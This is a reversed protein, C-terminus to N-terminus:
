YIGVIRRTYADIAISLWPRGCPRGTKSSILEIDLQTHDMHVYQFSRSGHVPTDAHLVHVFESNQYAVRKGHRAGDAHQQPLADIRAILTPYSPLPIQREECLTKLVRHCHKLNSARANLFENGIVEQMAAEQAESLRPQRN